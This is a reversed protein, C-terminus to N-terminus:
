LTKTAAAVTVTRCGMDDRALRAWLVPLVLQPVTWLRNDLFERATVVKLRALDGSEQQTLVGPALSSASARVTIASLGPPVPPSCKSRRVVLAKLIDPPLTVSEGQGLIEEVKKAIEEAPTPPGLIAVHWVYNLQLRYASLEVDPDRILRQAAHYSRGAEEEGPFRAARYYGPTEEEPGQPQHHHERDREPM